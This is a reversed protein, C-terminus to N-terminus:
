RPQLGELINYADNDSGLVTVSVIEGERAERKLFRLAEVANPTRMIRTIYGDTDAVHVTITM